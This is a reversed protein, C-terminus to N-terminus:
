PIQKILFYGDENTDVFDVLWKTNPLKRLEDEILEIDTGDDGAILNTTIKFYSCFEHFTAIKITKIPIILAMKYITLGNM